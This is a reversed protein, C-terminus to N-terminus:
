ETERQSDVAYVAADGVSFVQELEDPMTATFAEPVLIYDIGHEQLLQTNNSPNDWFQRLPDQQSIPNEQGRFYPQQPIFIAQREPIIAGWQGLTPHNLIIAEPETNERLWNMTAVENESSTTATNGLLREVGQLVPQRTLATIGIAIVAILAFAYVGRRLSRRLNERLLSEWVWALAIGGLITFPIVLGQLAVASPHIFRQLFPLITPLIETGALDIIVLSWLSAVVVVFRNRRWGFLIGIVALIAGPLWLTPFLNIQDLGFPLALESTLLEWNNILWPSIAIIAIFPIGGLMIAWFRQSYRMQQLTLGILFIGYGSLIILTSTPNTIIVAGLMLGAGAMDHWHQHQSFRYLYTLCAFGFILGLLGTYYSSLFIQILGVGLLMALAMGRGLRKDGVEAGFDYALWVALLSFTVTIGMQIIPIPQNLQENLYAVLAHFTPSYLVDVEPFFPALTNLGEGYRATLSLYGPTIANTGYPLHTVITPAIFFLAVVGFFALDEPGTWGQDADELVEGRAEARAQATSLTGGLIVFTLLGFLIYDIVLISWGFAEAWFVTGGVILALLFTSALGIRPQETRWAPAFMAGSGILFASFIIIIFLQM